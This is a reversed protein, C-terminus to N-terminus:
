STNFFLTEWIDTFAEVIIRYRHHSNLSFFCVLLQEWDRVEFMQKELIMEMISRKFDEYPDKSKKVAAFSEKVKGKAEFSPILKKFGSLRVPSEIKPSWVKGEKSVNCKAGKM